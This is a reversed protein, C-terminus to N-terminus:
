SCQSNTNVTLFNRIKPIKFNLNDAIVSYLDFKEVFESISYLEVGLQRSVREKIQHMGELKHLHSMSSEHPYVTHVSFYIGWPGWGDGSQLSTICIPHHGEGGGGWCVSIFFDFKRM